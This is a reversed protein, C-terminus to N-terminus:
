STHMEPNPQVLGKGYEANKHRAKGDVEPKELSM